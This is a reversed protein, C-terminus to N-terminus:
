VVGRLQAIAQEYSIGDLSFELRKIQDMGIGKYATLNFAMLSEFGHIKKKTRFNPYLDKLIANKSSASTLKYNLRDFVLQQISPHELYHLLLEPTYSYWENVLPIGFKQSFRMASGDENERITYYWYSDNATVQRTLLAEGGMVAPVGLKLISNYVMIYTLQTCQIQDGFEKAEGSYYFEHVNFDLIELQVGLEDAIAQAEAVESINYDNEFRLAICRPKFRNFIFNRLVIESDTGGSLFLVLDNGLDQQVLQATRHLEDAYSGHAYRDPDIAGLSVQYQEYSNKRYGYNRGGITYNLHNNHTFNM